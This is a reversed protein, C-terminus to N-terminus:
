HENALRFNLNTMCSGGTGSHMQPYFYSGMFEGRPHAIECANTGKAEAHSRM